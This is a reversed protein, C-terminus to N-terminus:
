FCRTAMARDKAMRGFTMSNSSAVDASSGSITPSTSSTLGGAHDEGVGAHDLLFASRVLDEVMWLAFSQLREKGFHESHERPGPSQKIASRPHFAAITHRITMRIQMYFVPSHLTFNM